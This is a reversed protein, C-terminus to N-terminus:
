VTSVQIFVRTVNMILAFWKKNKCHKMTVSEFDDPFPCDKFTDELTLCYKIIEEKNMVLDKYYDVLNKVINIM